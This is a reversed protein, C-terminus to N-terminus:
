QNSILLDKKNLDHNTRIFRVTGTTSRMVLSHTHATQNKSFTVGGLLSGATVGTACFIVEGGALEETSYVKHIDAINMDKQAREIQAHDIEGKGGKKHFILQGQFGGGLCRLAAASLVGEPAGGIGMLVDVGSRELGCALAPQVDGDTILQIRTGLSRIDAILQQHRPRDMVVVTLDQPRCDKAKAIALLNDQTSQHLDIVHAAEKGVAIKKMYVDPAHLFKGKQAVAIVALANPHGKACLTTGELPDLAVDLAEGQGSGVKEGIYLMPAQDREGEGIQVTGDFDITALMQRMAKVALEDARKENGHGMEPACALAAAETVRVFELALLRNM